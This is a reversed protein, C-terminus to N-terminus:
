TKSFNPKRTLCVALQRVVAQDLVQQDILDLEILAQGLLVNGGSSIIKNQYALATELDEPRILKEEVLYDGLRPILSEPAGAESAGAEYAGM